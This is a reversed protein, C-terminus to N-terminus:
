NKQFVRVYDVQMTCPLANNDVGNWGGWYWKDNYSTFHTWNGGSGSSGFLHSNAAYADERVFSPKATM